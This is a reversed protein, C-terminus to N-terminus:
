MPCTRSAARKSGAGWRRAAPKACVCNMPTGRVRFPMIQTALAARQYPGAVGNARPYGGVLAELRVVVNDSRGFFGSRFTDWHFVYPTNLSLNTTVTGTYAVAERWHGGGNLSFSARCCGNFGM